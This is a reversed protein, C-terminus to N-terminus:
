HAGVYFRQNTGPNSGWQDLQAGQTTGGPNDLVLGSHRNTFVYSGDSQRTPLWQDNGQNGFQWQVIPAGNDTRAGSVNIDLGSYANKIQYYGSSTPIFNWLQNSGGGYPYQIVIGGNTTSGGSVDLSLGSYVNKIEFYGAFDINSVWGNAIVQQVGGAWVNAMKQYGGDNPHTSDYLDGTNLSSMSVMTIHKGANARAQVIGPIQSNYSNIRSQVTADKNCILQAVVITVGPDTNFIQDILSALRNPATSVNYNQGLDNTGIHLTVLNPQYTALPGNILAAVEDIRKGSHGEHDPDFMVGDRIAGVFDIANGQNKLTSWLPGRYGNNTTSQFGSTISDGIPMLRLGASQAASSIGTLMMLSGLCVSAFSFANKKKYASVTM